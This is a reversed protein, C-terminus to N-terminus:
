SASLTGYLRWKTTNKKKLTVGNYRNAIYFNDSVSHLEDTTISFVVSGTGERSFDIQTGIPFPVSSNAPITITITSSSDCYITKGADTLALTTNGTVTSVTDLLSISPTTTPNTVSLGNGVSVSSVSGTQFMDQMAVITAM